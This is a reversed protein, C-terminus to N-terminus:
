KRRGECASVIGADIELWGEVGHTFPSTRGVLLASIAMAYGDVEAILERFVDIHFPRCRSQIVPADARLQALVERAGAHRDTWTQGVCEDLPELFTKRQFRSELLPLVEAPTPPAIKALAVDMMPWETGFRRKAADPDGGALEALRAILSATEVRTALTAQYQTLPGSLERAQMGHLYTFMAEPQEQLELTKAIAGAEFHLWPSGVNEPTLCIIAARCRGLQGFVEDFWARGKDIDSSKFPAEFRDRDLVAKLLDLLADALAESRRGSWSIFVPLRESM